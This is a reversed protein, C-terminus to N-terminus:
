GYLPERNAKMDKGLAVAQNWWAGPATPFVHASEATLLALKERQADNMYHVWEPHGDKADYIVMGHRDMFHLKKYQKVLNANVAKLTDDCIRGWRYKETAQEYEKEAKALMKALMNRHNKVEKPTDFTRPNWKGLDGKPKPKQVGGQHLRQPASGATDTVPEWAFDPTFPCTLPEHEKGKGSGM